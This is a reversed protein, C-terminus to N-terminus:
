LSQMTRWVHTMRWPNSLVSAAMDLWPIIERYFSWLLSFSLELRFLLRCFFGICSSLFGFTLNGEPCLVEIRIDFSSPESFFASYFLTSISVSLATSASTILRAGSCALSHPPSLNLFLSFSFVLSLLLYEQLIETLYYKSTYSAQWPSASHWAPTSCPTPSAARPSVGPWACTRGPSPVSGLPPHPLVVKLLSVVIILIVFGTYLPDFACWAM